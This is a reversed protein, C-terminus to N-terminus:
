CHAVVAAYIRAVGHRKLQRAAANLTAGTTKVDDVLLISEPCEMPRVSFAEPRLNRRGTADKGVQRSVGRRSLIPRYELSLCSSVGQALRDAQDFGRYLRRPFTTPVPVVADVKVKGVLGEGLVHGLHDAALLSRKYKANRVLSGLLGSYPGMSWCASVASPHGVM